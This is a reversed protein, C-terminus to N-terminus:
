IQRWASWTTGSHYSRIYIPSSESMVFQVQTIWDASFKIVLFSSINGVAANLMDHGHYFGTDTVSNMNEGVIDVADIGGLFSVSSGFEAPMGVQFADKTTVMGVGVGRGGQRFHMTAFASSISIEASSSTFYDGVVIKFDYNKDTDASTSASTTNTYSYSGSSLTLASTWASAGSLRKQLIFSKTNGTLPTISASYIAHAYGGSPNYTSDINCREVNFATIRPPSYAVVNVTLTSSATRGRSDTVKFTITNTGATNLFGTIAPSSTFTQGNTTMAISTVTASYQTATVMSLQLKSKTQILSGFTTNINTNYEVASKTTISPVVSAPVTVTFTTTKTGILSAGSYTKCTVTMTASTSTTIHEAYIIPLVWTDSAGISNHTEVVQSNIAYELIHTFSADARNTNITISKGLEVSSASPSPQSARAITPLTISKDTITLATQPTYATISSTRFSASVNIAKSGDSTHQITKAGSAVSVTKHTGSCSFQNGAPWSWEKSDTTDIDVWTLTNSLAYYNFSSAGVNLLLRWNITSTNNVTSQSVLDVELTLSFYNSTTSNFTYTAM